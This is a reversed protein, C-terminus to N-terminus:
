FLESWKRTTTPPSQSRLVNDNSGTSVGGVAGCCWEELSSVSTVTKPTANAMNNNNNNSNDNICSNFWLSTSSPNNSSSNKIADTYEMYVKAHHLTDNQLVDKSLHVFEEETLLILEPITLDTQRSMTQLNYQLAPPSSRSSTALKLAAPSDRKHIRRRISSQLLQQREHWVAAHQLPTYQAYIRTLERFGDDSLHNMESQKIIGARTMLAQLNPYEEEEQPVDEDQQQLPFFTSSLESTVHDFLSTTTALLDHHNLLPSSTGTRQEDDGSCRVLQPMNHKNPYRAYHYVHHSTGTKAVASSLLPIIRDIIDPVVGTTHPKM